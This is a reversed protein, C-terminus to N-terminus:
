LVYPSKGIYILLHVKIFRPPNSQERNRACYIMEHLDPESLNQRAAYTSSAGFCIQSFNSGYSMAIKELLVKFSVDSLECPFMPVWPVLSSYVRLCSFYSQKGRYESLFSVTFCCCLESKSARNLSISGRTSWVPRSTTCQMFNMIVNKRFTARQFPSKFQSRYM